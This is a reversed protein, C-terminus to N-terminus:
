AQAVLEALGGREKLQERIRETLGAIEAKQGESVSEDQLVTPGTRFRGCRPDYVHVNGSLVVTAGEVWAWAEGQLSDAHKKYSQRLTDLQQHTLSIPYVFYDRQRRLREAGAAIIAAYVTALPTNDGYPIQMLDVM